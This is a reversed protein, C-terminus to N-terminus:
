LRRDGISIFPICFKGESAHILATLPIYVNVGLMRDLIMIVGVHFLKPRVSFISSLDEHTEKHVNSHKKLLKSSLLSFLMKYQTTGHLSFMCYM